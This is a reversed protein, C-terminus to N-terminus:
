TLRARLAAIESRLEARIESSDSRPERTCRWSHFALETAMAHFTRRALWAGVGGSVLAACSAGFRRRASAVCAVDDITLTGEAIASALYERIIQQERRLSFFAVLAVGFFAPVMVLLYAAFFAVGFSASLNWLSHLTMAGALGLLPAFFKVGARRSERSLGLGIGTMSTFLPHAFPGMIGRLFFVISVDEGASITHGYYQVNETMAFGLGVMAAYIIGDTVNDFEDRKWLFLLFLATGKSLEEVFPASVVSAFAAGLLEEGIGNVILSFFIAIAAGWAFALVLTYNPEPEYRDIWLAISVYLPVPVAALLFGVLFGNRGLDYGILALSLVGLIAATSLVFGAIIRTSRSVKRM